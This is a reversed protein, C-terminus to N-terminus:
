KASFLRMNNKYVSNASYKTEHMLFAAAVSPKSILTTCQRTFLSAGKLKSKGSFTSNM